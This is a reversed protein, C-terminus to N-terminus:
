FFLLCVLLAVKGDRDELSDYTESLLTLHRFFEGTFDKRRKTVIANLDRPNDQIEKLLEGHREMEDDIQLSVDRILFLESVDLALVKVFYFWMFIYLYLRTGFYFVSKDNEVMLSSICNLFNLM